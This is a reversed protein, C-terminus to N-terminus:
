GRSARVNRWNGWEEVWPRLHENRARGWLTYVYPMMLLVRYALPNLLDNPDKSLFAARSTRTQEPWEAGEEIMNLMVALEDFADRSLFKIDAPTWM